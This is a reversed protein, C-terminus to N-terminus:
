DDAILVKPSRLLLTALLLSAVVFQVTSATLAAGSQYFESPAVGLRITAMAIHVSAIGLVILKLERGRRFFLVLISILTISIYTSALFPMISKWCGSETFQLSTETNFLRELVPFSNNISGVLYSFSLYGTQVASLMVATKQSITALDRSPAGAKNFSKFM